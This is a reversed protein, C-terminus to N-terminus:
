GARRYRKRRTATSLDIGSLLAALEETTMELFVNANLCEDRTTWQLKGRVREADPPRAPHANLHNETRRVM